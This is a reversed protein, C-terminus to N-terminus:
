GHVIDKPECAAATAGNLLTTCNFFKIQAGEGISGNAKLKANIAGIWTCSFLVSIGAIKTHLVQTTDGRLELEAELFPLSKGVLDALLWQAGTEAQSATASFMMLGFAAACSAIVCLKARIM